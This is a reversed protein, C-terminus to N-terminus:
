ASGPDIAIEMPRIDGYKDAWLTAMQETLPLPRVTLGAGSGLEAALPEPVVLTKMGRRESLGCCLLGREISTGYLAAGFMRVDGRALGAAFGMTYFSRGRNFSAAHEMLARWAQVADHVREFLLVYSDAAVARLEGRHEHSVARHAQDWADLVGEVEDLPAERAFRSFKELDTMLVLADRLARTRHRVVARYVRAPEPVGELAFTGVYEVGVDTRHLNHYVADSLYIEGAPTIAELRTVMALPGGVIEGRQLLADGAVIAVRVAAANHEAGSARFGAIRRQLEISARVAGTSSEFVFLNADDVEKVHQGGHGTLCETVLQRHQRLFADLALSSLGDM